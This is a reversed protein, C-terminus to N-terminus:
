KRMTAAIDARQKGSLGEVIIRELDPNKDRFWGLNRCIQLERKTTKTPTHTRPDEGPKSVKAYHMLTGYKMPACDEPFLADYQKLFEVLQPLSREKCKEEHPLHTGRNELFHQVYANVMNLYAEFQREQFFDVVDKVDPIAYVDSYFVGDGNKGLDRLGATFLASMHASTNAAIKHPYRGLFTAGPALLLCSEDSKVYAMPVERGCDDALFKRTSDVMLNEFSPDFPRQFHARTLKGFKHGDTQIVIFKDPEIPTSGEVAYQSAIKTLSM